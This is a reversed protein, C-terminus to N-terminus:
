LPYNAPNIALEQKNREAWQLDTDTLRCHVFTVVIFREDDDPSIQEPNSAGHLVGTGLKGRLAPWARESLFVLLRAPDSDAVEIRQGAKDFVVLGRHSSVWHATLACRDRHVKAVEAGKAKSKYRALRTVVPSGIIRARLSGRYKKAPDREHENQIDLEGALGLAIRRAMANFQACADFFLRYQQVPAGQRELVARTTDYCHFYWKSDYRVSGEAAERATLESKREGSKEFLGQDDAESALHYRFLDREPSELM